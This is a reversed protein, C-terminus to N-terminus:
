RGQEVPIGADDAALLTRLRAELETIARDALYALLPAARQRELKELHRQIHRLEHGAARRCGTSCYSRPRGVGSPNLPKRCKLCLRKRGTM